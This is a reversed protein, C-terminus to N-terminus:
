PAPWGERKIRGMMGASRRTAAVSCVFHAFHITKLIKLSIRAIGSQDRTREMWKM